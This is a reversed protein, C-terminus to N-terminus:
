EVGSNITSDCRQINGHSGLPDGRSLKAAISCGNDIPKAVLSRAIKFNSPAQLNGIRQFEYM